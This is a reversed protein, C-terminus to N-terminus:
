EEEKQLWRAVSQAVWIGMAYPVGNGILHVGLKNTIYENEALEIGLEPFGHLKGADATKIGPHGQRSWGGKEGRRGDSALLSLEGKGRKRPPLMVSFALEFPWFWFTRRRETNGGCDYDKVTFHTWESPLFPSKKAGIVNEMVIWRPQGEEIIRAYEGILDEAKSLPNHSPSFVQCPPGGIIGDFRGAPIHFKKINQGWLKDPGRVVSFGLEEFAMGLLDAGPFCSLVLQEKLDIM